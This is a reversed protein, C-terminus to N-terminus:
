SNPIATAMQQRVLRWCDGCIRVEIGRLRIVGVQILGTDGVRRDCANCGGSTADGKSVRVEPAYRPPKLRTSVLFPEPSGAPPVRPEGPTEARKSAM